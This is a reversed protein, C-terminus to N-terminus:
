SMPSTIIFRNRFDIERLPSAHHNAIDAGALATDLPTLIPVAGDHIAYTVVVDRIKTKWFVSDDHVPSTM